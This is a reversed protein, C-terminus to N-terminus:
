ITFNFNREHEDPDDVIMHASGTCDTNVTYTGVFTVPVIVGNKSKSETGSLNGKGDAVLRGVGARAFHVPAAPDPIRWGTLTFGYAGKFIEANCQGNEANASGTAAAVAFAALSLVVFRSHGLM